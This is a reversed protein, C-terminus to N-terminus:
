PIPDRGRIIERARHHKPRLSLALDLISEVQKNSLRRCSYFDISLYKHEPWTHASAHSLSLLLIATRGGGKFRHKKVDLVKSKAVKAMKRLLPVPDVKADVGYLDFLIHTGETPIVSPGM